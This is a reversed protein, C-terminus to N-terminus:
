FNLYCAFFKIHYYQYQHVVFSSLNMHNTLDLCGKFLFKSNKRFPTTLSTLWVSFGIKFLKKIEKSYWFNFFFNSFGFIYSCTLALKLYMTTSKGNKLIYFTGLAAHVCAILDSLSNIFGYIKLTGWNKYRFISNEGNSM